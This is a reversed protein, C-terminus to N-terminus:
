RGRSEPERSALSGALVPADGPDIALDSPFARLTDLRGTSASELPGSSRGPFTPAFDRLEPALRAYVREIRGEAEEMRRPGRGIPTSLRVALMHSPRVLPSRDLALAHRLWEEPLSGAREHWSYSLVRKAGRRLVLRRARVSPAGDDVRTAATSGSQGLVGWGAEVEAFGTGPWGLRPTLITHRRLQEEAVGLFVEVPGSELEVSRRAWTLFRVSGRFQDDKELPYSPWDGFAHRLVADPMRDIDRAFSWPVITRGLGILGLLVGAVVALGFTASPRTSLSRALSAGPKSSATPAAGADAAAREPVIDPPPTDDSKLGRALGLDILYLVTLGVLLMGIGQLSHIAAVDSHPNLVLTVVRVGNTLFAVVPALAILIAAHWGRREFLDILLVTLMTLTVVTRLGSCTEIVVFTNAPRLIQDGQVVSEVGIANLLAGAYQATALQVPYMVASILVPSIPLAFALFLIPLWFARLGARGGLLIVAGALLGLLSALQLDPAGTYVGWGHLALTLAFVIAAPLPRGGSALVDLYHSRRYFLWLALLLVPAGAAENAEFFFEDSRTALAADEEPFLLPGYLFATLGLVVLLMWALPDRLFALPAPEPRAEGRGRDATSSGGSTASSM